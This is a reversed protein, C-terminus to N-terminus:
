GLIDQKRELYEEQEIEGSAYRRNLVELAASTTSASEDRRRTAAWVGWLLLGITVVMVLWGIMGMGWWGMHGWDGGHAVVSDFCM